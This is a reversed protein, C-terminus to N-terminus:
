KLFTYNLYDEQDDNLLTLEHKKGKAMILKLFNSEYPILANELAIKNFYDQVQKQPAVYHGHVQKCEYNTLLCYGDFLELQQKLERIAVDSNKSYEIFM